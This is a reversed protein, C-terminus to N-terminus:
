RDDERAARPRTPPATIAGSVIGLMIRKPKDVAKRAIRKANQLDGPIPRIRQFCFPSVSRRPTSSTGTGVTSRRQPLAAHPTQIRTSPEAGVWRGSARKQM